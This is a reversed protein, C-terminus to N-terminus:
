RWGSHRSHAGGSAGRRTPTAIFSATTVLGARTRMCRRVDKGAAMGGGSVFFSEAELNPAKEHLARIRLVGVEVSDGVGSSSGSNTSAVGSHEGRSILQTRKLSQTAM